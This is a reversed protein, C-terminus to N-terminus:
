IDATALSLVFFPYTSLDEYLIQLAAIFPKITSITKQLREGELLNEAAETEFKAKEGLIREIQRQANIVDKKCDSVAKNAKELNQRLCATHSNVDTTMFFLFYM